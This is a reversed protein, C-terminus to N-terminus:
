ASAGLGLRLAMYPKTEVTRRFPDDPDASLRADNDGLCPVKEQKLLTVQTLTLILALAVGLGLGLGVGLGLGLGIGLGLVQAAEKAM